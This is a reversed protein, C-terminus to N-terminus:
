GEEGQDGEEAIVTKSRETPGNEEQSGSARSAGRASAMFSCPQVPSRVLAQRRPKGHSQVTAADKDRRPPKARSPQCSKDRTSDFAARYILFLPCYQHNNM